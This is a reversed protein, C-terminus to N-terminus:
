ALPTVQDQLPAIGTFHKRPRELLDSGIKLREASV